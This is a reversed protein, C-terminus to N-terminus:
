SLYGFSEASNKKRKNAILTGGHNALKPISNSHKSHSCRCCQILVQHRRTCVTDVSQEQGNCATCILQSHALRHFLPGNKRRYSVQPPRFANEVRM